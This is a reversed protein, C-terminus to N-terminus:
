AQALPSRDLVVIGAVATAAGVAQVALAAPSTALQEGFLAVGILVAGVPELCDIIPLSIALSGAQYSSQSLVLGIVGVLVVAYPEWHGFGDLGEGRFWGGASKTLSDLLAFMLAAAIAYLATRAAARSRRGVAALAVVAAGIGILVPLWEGATPAPAAESPPLVALFMAIGGATCAIGATDRRTLPVGRRRALLPLAFVLDTAALPQVLVLPGFALALGLLAYSLVVLAMGALWAPRRALGLLLRLRLAEQAPAQQAAKQQLVSAFGFAAASLLAAVVAVATDM